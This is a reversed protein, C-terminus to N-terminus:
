RRRRGIRGTVMTREQGLEAELAQRRTMLRLTSDRSAMAAGEEASLCSRFFTLSGDPRLRMMIWSDRSMAANWTGVNAFVDGAEIPEFVLDGSSNRSAIM